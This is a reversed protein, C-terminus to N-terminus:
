LALIVIQMALLVLLRQPPQMYPGMLWSNGIIISVSGSLAEFSQPASIIIKKTEIDPEIVVTQTAVAIATDKFSDAAAGTKEADQNARNGNHLDDTTDNSSEASSAANSKHKKDSETSKQDSDSTAALALDPIASINSSSSVSASSSKGEANDQVHATSKVSQPNVKVPNTSIPDSKDKANSGNSQQAEDSPSASSTLLSSPRLIEGVGDLLQGIDLLGAAPKCSALTAFAWILCLIFSTTKM